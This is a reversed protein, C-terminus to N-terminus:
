AMRLREAVRLRASRARPNSRIEDEDPRLPRKTILRLRAVHDCTCVPQEPPCICDRSELHLTRKVIRDELSHFAIVALRGGPKLLDVAQDLGRQLQDLEDNVAIRLAQFTKTAPHVRGSSRRVAQQVVGALALTGEIPRAQVIARAIRRARREEGYRQILDALAAEPLENVLDRARMSQDQDFRMDLPGDYRFSFGRDPDDLQMSSLGLDLLVGGVADWGIAAAHAKMQAYTGHRFHVREGFPRLRAEAASLAAHDRDIGLLEGGPSSAELIGYAHGGAGLTGDIYRGSAEPQVAELVRQYLVPTHGQPHADDTSARM